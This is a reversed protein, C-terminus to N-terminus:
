AKEEITAKKLEDQADAVADEEQALEAEASPAGNEQAPKKAADTARGNTQPATAKSEEEELRTIEEQAKKINEETKSAQNKKWETIKAALKEVSAPVDSQNMPPDIKVKAFDEIIGVNMNFKTSEVNAAGGKKGGKKGKKGGSGVFYDEEDDKRVVKMGKIEAAEVTRGVGARFNSGQDKKEDLGLSSFDYAPDFHRILGQATLIEDAYALQSAEELKKDAIKKRKERAFAEQEAKQRERRVRWAEDEYEKYARRAKFYTDKITRIATYKEQQENRLKTREDRLANLNKFVGDQEAKIADLEKQIESYKDSLAKAEPNDLTKRLESIQTKIDNIGKQAEDLGAFSKRQKRLNSVETLTKREDVLRLTGSDVEKELRAIQNDIEEVSKFSLRGRSNNQEAIRAKLNADLANIKEQTSSRSSKFGSQKQRIASLEARLEQQKKVTPSDQNNPKANDLKAKIQNLKEQAAAHEKEAEALSAKYAAEDPKTPKVREAATPAM